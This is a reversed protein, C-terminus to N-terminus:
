KKSYKKLEEKKSALLSKDSAIDAELQRGADQFRRYEADAKRYQAQAERLTQQADYLDKRRQAQESDNGIAATQRGKELRYANLAAEAEELKVKAAVVEERGTLAERELQQVALRADALEQSAAAIDEAGADGRPPAEQLKKLWAEASAVRQVALQHPPTAALEELVPKAAQSYQAAAADRAVELKVLAEDKPAQEAEQSSEVVALKADKVPEQANDLTQRADALEKELEKFKAGAKTRLAENSKIRSEIQKIEKKIEDAKQKKWDDADAWVLTAVALGVMVMVGYSAPQMM